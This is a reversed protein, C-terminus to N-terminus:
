GYTYDYGRAIMQGRDAYPMYEAMLGRYELFSETIRRVLEDSDERMEAIIEGAANGMAITIEEPLERVVVDHEAVMERLAMAHRTNYETLVPNYLSECAYTVAAQLDEPVQANAPSDYAAEWRGDQKAQEVQVLGAPRMRGAAILEAVLERNRKSWMSKPRRPTFKQMFFVEDIRKSQGDIWGFCLATRLAEQYNISPIGSGKRAMKIWVGQASAANEELWQEWDQDSEFHIVPYDTV